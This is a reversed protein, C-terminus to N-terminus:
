QPTNIETMITKYAEVNEPTGVYFETQGEPTTATDFYPFVRKSFRNYVSARKPTDATFFVVENPHAKVFDSVNAFSTNLIALESGKGSLKYQNLSKDSTDRFAVEWVPPENSLKDYEITYLRGDPVDFNFVVGDPTNTVLKTQLTKDMLEFLLM